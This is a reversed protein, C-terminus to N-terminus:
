EGTWRVQLLWEIHFFRAAESVKFGVLLLSCLAIWIASKLKM